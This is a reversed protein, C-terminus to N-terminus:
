SKTFNHTMKQKEVSGSTISKKACTHVKQQACFGNKVATVM